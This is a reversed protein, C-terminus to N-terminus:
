VTVLLYLLSNNKSVYTFTTNTVLDVLLKVVFDCYIKLKMSFHLSPMIKFTFGIHM